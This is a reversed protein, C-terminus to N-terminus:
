RERTRVPEIPEAFVEEVPWTDVSRVRGVRTIQVDSGDPLREVSDSLAAVEATIEVMFEGAVRTPVVPVAHTAYGIAPDCHRGRGVPRGPAVGINPGEINYHGGRARTQAILMGRSQGDGERLTYPGAYKRERIM